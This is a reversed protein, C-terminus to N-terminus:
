HPFYCQPRDFGLPTASTSQLALAASFAVLVISNKGAASRERGTEAQTVFPGIPPHWALCTPRDNVPRCPTPISFV